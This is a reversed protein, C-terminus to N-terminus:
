KSNVDFPWSTRFLIRVFNNQPRTDIKFLTIRVEDTSDMSILNRRSHNPWDTNEVM